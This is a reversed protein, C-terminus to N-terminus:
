GLRNPNLRVGAWAGPAGSLIQGPVVPTPSAAPKLLLQELHEALQEEQATRLKRDALAVVESLSRDMPHEVQYDELLLRYSNTAPSYRVPALGFITSPQGSESLEPLLQVRLERTESLLEHAQASRLDVAVQTPTVASGFVAARGTVLHAAFALVRSTIGVEIVSLGPEGLIECFASGLEYALMWPELAGQPSPLLAGVARTAYHAPPEREVLLGPVGVARAVEAVLDLVGRWTEERNDRKTVIHIGLSPAIFEDRILARVDAVPRYVGNNSAVAVPPRADGLRHRLWSLHALNTDFWLYEDSSLRYCDFNASMEHAFQWTTADRGLPPHSVLEVDWRRRAGSLMIELVQDALDLGAGTLNTVGRALRFRSMLGSTVLRRQYPLFDKGVDILM